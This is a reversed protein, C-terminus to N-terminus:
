ATPASITSCSAFSIRRWRPEVHRYALAHFFADWQWVGVYHIKSPTMAERTTYFRSSILGIRMALWAFYYQSRFRDAVPPAAAFWAHWRQAAADIATAADPLYRNFGLRPTINLLLRAGRHM